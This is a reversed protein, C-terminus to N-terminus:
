LFCAGECEDMQSLSLQGREEPTSLDVEDLWEYVARPEDGTDAFIALRPSPDLEGEVAMLALTSSQVGAGLSIVADRDDSM